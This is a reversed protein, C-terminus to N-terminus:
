LGPARFFEVRRANDETFEIAMALADSRPMPYYWTTAHWYGASSSAHAKVVGRLAASRPPGFVAAVAAKTNGIIADALMPLSEAPTPPLGPRAACPGSTQRKARHGGSRGPGRARRLLSEFFPARAALVATVLGALTAAMYLALQTYESVGKRADTMEAGQPDANDSGEKKGRSRTKKPDM